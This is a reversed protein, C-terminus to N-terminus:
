RLLFRTLFLIVGLVVLGKGIASSKKGLKIEKNKKFEKSDICGLVIGEIIMLGLFYAGFLNIVKM